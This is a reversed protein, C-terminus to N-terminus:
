RRFPTVSFNSAPLHVPQPVHTSTQGCETKEMFFLFASTVSRPDQMSHPAQLIFQGAFAISTFTPTPHAPAIRRPITVPFSAVQPQESSPFDDEDQQPQGSFYNV